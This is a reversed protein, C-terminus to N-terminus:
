YLQRADRLANTVIERVRAEFRRDALLAQVVAAEGPAALATPTDTPETASTTQTAFTPQSAPRVWREAASELVKRVPTFTGAIVLTTLVIAADSTDGTLAVFLRQFLAVGAAYLGGLIGILPLYVLTRNVLTDIEYLRHKTVAIWIAVPLVALAALAVVWALESVAPIRLVGVALAIAAILAVYVFWALQKQEDGSAGRLRRVLTLTALAYGVALLLIGLRTAVDLLPALEAVGVPNAVRFGEAAPRTSFADALTVLALGILTVSVISRGHRPLRGAPFVLVVLGVLVIGPEILLSGLWAAWPVIAANIGNTTAYQAYEYLAFGAVILTAAGLLMWGIPNRPRRAALLAGVTAPSCANVVLLPLLLPEPPAHLNTAPDALVLAVATVLLVVTLIWLGAALWRVRRPEGVRDAVLAEATM